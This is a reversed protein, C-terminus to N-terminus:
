CLPPILILTLFELRRWSKRSPRWGIGTSRGAAGRANNGCPSQIAEYVRNKSTQINAELLWELAGYATIEDGPRVGSMMLGDYIRVATHLGREIAAERLRDPLGWHPDFGEFEMVTDHHSGPLDVRLADIKYIPRSQQKRHLLKETISM